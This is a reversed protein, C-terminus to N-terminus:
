RACGPSALTRIRPRSESLAYEVASSPDPVVLKWEGGSRRFVVVTVYADDFRPEPVIPDGDPQPVPWQKWAQQALVYALDDGQPVVDLVRVAIDMPVHAIDTGLVAVFFDADPIARFDGLTAVCPFMQRIVKRNRRFTKEDSALAPRLKAIAGEAVSPHIEGAISRYAEIPHDGGRLALYRTAIDVMRARAPEPFMSARASVAGTATTAGCLLLASLAV